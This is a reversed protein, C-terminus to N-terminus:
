LCKSFIWIKFPAEARFCLTSHQLNNMPPRSNTYVYTAESSHPWNSTCSQWIINTHRLYNFLSATLAADKSMEMTLCNSPSRFKSVWAAVLSSKCDHTTTSFNARQNTMIERLRPLHSWLSLIIFLGTKKVKLHSLGREAWFGQVKWMWLHDTKDWFHLLLM